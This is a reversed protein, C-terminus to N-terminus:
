AKEFLRLCRRRGRTKFGLVDEGDGQREEGDGHREGRDGFADGM